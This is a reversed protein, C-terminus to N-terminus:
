LQKEILYMCDINGKETDSLYPFFEKKTIRLNPISQVFINAYDAKWLFGNNGRYSIEQVSEAYYEYGWIYKKTCRSIESMIRQHNIPAIHILVGSTYVIDFYQDRFPIDFGSGQIININRTHRKAQEVAYDQLEIGYLNKFGMEQLIQLQSGINCGVELINLDYPMDSLFKKNMDIRSIGFNKLYYENMELSNQPNRDTYDKGFQGNWFKEQETTMM